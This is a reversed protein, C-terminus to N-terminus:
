KLQGSLVPKITDIYTYQHDFIAAASAVAAKVDVIVVVLTLYLYCKHICVSQDAIKNSMCCRTTVRNLKNNILMLAFFALILEVCSVDRCSQFM